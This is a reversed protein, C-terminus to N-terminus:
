SFYVNSLKVSGISTSAVTAGAKLNIYNCNSIDIILNNINNAKSYSKITSINSSNNYDYDYIYFSVNYTYGGITYPKNTMTLNDIILYSVGSVNLILNPNTLIDISLGQFLEINEIATCIDDVGNSAPTQGKATVAQM